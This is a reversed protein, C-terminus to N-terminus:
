VDRRGRGRGRVMGGFFLNSPLFPSSADAATSSHPFQPLRSLSSSSIHQSPGQLPHNWVAHRERGTSSSDVILELSSSEDLVQIQSLHRM